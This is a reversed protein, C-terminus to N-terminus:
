NIKLVDFKKVNFFVEKSTKKKNFVFKFNITTIIELNNIKYNAKGVIKEKVLPYVHVQLRRKM